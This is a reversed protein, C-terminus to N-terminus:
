PTINGAEQTVMAPTLERGLSKPRQAAPANTKGENHARWPDDRRSGPHALADIEQLLLKYMDVLLVRFVRFAEGM